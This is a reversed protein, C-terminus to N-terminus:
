AKISKCCSILVCRASDTVLGCAFGSHVGLFKECGESQAEPM